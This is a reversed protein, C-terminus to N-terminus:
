INIELLGHTEKKGTTSDDPCIKYYTTGILSTTQKADAQQQWIDM